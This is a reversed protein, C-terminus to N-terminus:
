FLRNIKKKALVGYKTELEQILQEKVTVGTAEYVKEYPLDMFETIAIFMDVTTYGKGQLGLYLEQFIYPLVEKPFRKGLPMERWQSKDFVQMVEDLM